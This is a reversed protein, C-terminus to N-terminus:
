CLPSGSIDGLRRGALSASVEVVESGKARSPPSAILDILSEVFTLQAHAIAVLSELGAM